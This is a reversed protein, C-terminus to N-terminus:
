LIAAAVILAVALHMVAHVKVAPHPEPDMIFDGLKGPTVLTVLLYTLSMAVIGLASYAATYMLGKVLGGEAATISAAIIIAVGGLKSAVLLAANKNRDIWVQTRLHGPTLIDVVIFGVAMAAIGVASYAGAAVLNEEFRTM